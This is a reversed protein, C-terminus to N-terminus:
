VHLREDKKKTIRKWKTEFQQNTQVLQEQFKDNLKNTDDSSQNLLRCIFLCVVKYM